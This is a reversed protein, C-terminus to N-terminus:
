VGLLELHRWGGVTGLTGVTGATGATGVTRLCRGRGLLDSNEQVQARTHTSYFKIDRELCRYKFGVEFQAFELFLLKRLNQLLAVRFDRTCCPVPAPLSGALVSLCM